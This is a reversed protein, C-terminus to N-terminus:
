KTVKTRFLERLLPQVYFRGGRGDDFSAPVFAVLPDPLLSSGDWTAGEQPPPAHAFYLLHEPVSAQMFNEPVYM